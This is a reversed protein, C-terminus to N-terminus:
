STVVCRPQDGAAMVEAQVIGRGPQSWSAAASGLAEYLRRSPPPPEGHAQALAPRQQSLCRAEPMGPAVHRLLVAHGALGFVCATLRRQARGALSEPTAGPSDGRVLLHTQPWPRRLQALLRVVLRANELGPPRKGPRRCATVLAHAPGAVLCLPRSGYRQYPHTDCACAQPGHPPAASHALALGM